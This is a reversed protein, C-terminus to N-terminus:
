IIQRSLGSIVFNSVIRILNPLNTIVKKIATSSMSEGKSVYLSFRKSVDLVMCFSGVVIKQNPRVVFPQHAFRRSRLGRVTAM